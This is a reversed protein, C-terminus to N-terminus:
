VYLNYVEGCEIYEVSVRTDDKLKEYLLRMGEKESGIHGMVLVSKTHGLADADRAYEGIQWEIIEGTLMMDIDDSSILEFLGGPTGFCVAVNKCKKNLSGCIRIHSLGFNKKIKEAMELATLEEDLTITYSAYYPTENIVEPIIGLARLGGETIMDPRVKHQHDHFRYIVVGTSEILDFKEKFTPNDMVREDDAYFTPEHVILLDIGKEKVQRLVDVTAHMTIGVRKLERNDDGFKVTDVTNEKVVIDGNIEKIFEKVTM